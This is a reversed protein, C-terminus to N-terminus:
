RPPGVAIIEPSSRYTDVGLDRTVAGEPYHVTIWTHVRAGDQGPAVTKRIGPPLSPDRTFVTRKPYTALLEHRWTVAPPKRAGYISITLWRNQASARLLLPRGTDNRFRFDLGGSDTVTADQGPPLYPVTLGHPHREVVALDALVVANYLTSAPQCVGGGISPVIRDGVFMRGWGFGGAETFPGVTRNYSFVEGPEVVRGNLKKAALAINDAQSDSAHDFNTSYSAMLYALGLEAAQRALKADDPLFVGHAERPMESPLIPAASTGVAPDDVGTAAPRGTALRVGPLLAADFPARASGSPPLESPAESESESESAGLEQAGPHWIEGSIAFAAVVALYIAISVAIRAFAWRM